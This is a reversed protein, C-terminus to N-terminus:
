ALSRGGDVSIIEGTIFDGHEVLFRVTKAIDEPSGERGLPVLETLKRRHEAEYAEPFVAIGPAVGNVQIKPAMSRALGKTLAVLAAKSACYALHDPWPRESSVDCLNIIKGGAQAELHPKAHRSLGMPALLNIRLVSEWLEPDFRELGDSGSGPFISANNILIDLRGFQEVVQRVVGSWCDPDNLDSGITVVRRGLDTVQMALAQAEDHSTHYHIGVDCGARALELVISRGVRKAGGTVLAVTGELQM